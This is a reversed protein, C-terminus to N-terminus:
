LTGHHCLPPTSNCSQGNKINTSPTIPHDFCHSPQKVGLFSDRYGNYLLNLPCLATRSPHTSSFIEKGVSPKLSRVTWSTPLWQVSKQQEMTTSMIAMRTLKLVKCFSSRTTCIFVVGATDCDNAPFIPWYVRFLEDFYQPCSKQM